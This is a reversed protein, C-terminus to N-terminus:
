GQALERIQQFDWGKLDEHLWARKTGFIDLDLSWYLMVVYHDLTSLSGYFLPILEPNAHLVHFDSTDSIGPNM